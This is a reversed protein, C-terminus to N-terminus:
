LFVLRWCGPAIRYRHVLILKSNRTWFDKAQAVIVEGKESDQVHKKEAM